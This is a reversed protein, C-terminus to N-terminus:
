PIDHLSTYSGLLGSCTQLPDVLNTSLEPSVMTPQAKLMIRGLTQKM